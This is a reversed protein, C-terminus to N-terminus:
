ENGFGLLGGHTNVPFEHVSLREGKASSERWKEYVAEVYRGGGGPAALGAGSELLTVRGIVRVTVCVTARPQPPRYTFAQTFFFIYFVLARSWRPREHGGRGGGM